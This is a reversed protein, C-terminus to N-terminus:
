AVFLQDPTAGVWRGGAQVTIQGKDLRIGSVPHREKRPAIKFSVPIGKRLLLRGLSVVERNDKTTIKMTSYYCRGSFEDLNGFVHGLGHGAGSGTNYTISKRAAERIKSGSKLDPPGAGPKHTTEPTEHPNM